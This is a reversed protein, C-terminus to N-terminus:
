KNLGGKIRQGRDPRASQKDKQTPTDTIVVKIGHITSKDSLCFRALEQRTGEITDQAIDKGVVERELDARKNFNRALIKM